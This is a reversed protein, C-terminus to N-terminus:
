RGRGSETGNGSGGSSSPAGSSSAVDSLRLTHTRQRTRLAGLAVGAAVLGLAGLLAEVLAVRSLLAAAPAGAVERAAVRADWAKWLMYSGAVVLLVARLLV